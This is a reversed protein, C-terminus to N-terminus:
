FRPETHTDAVNMWCDSWIPPTRRMIAQFVLYYMFYLVYYWIDTYNQMWVKNWVLKIGVPRMQQSYINFLFFHLEYRVPMLSHLSEKLRQQITTKTKKPVMIWVSVRRLSCYSYLYQHHTGSDEPRDKRGTLLSARHTHRGCENLLRVMNAPHSAYNGSISLLVYLVIRLVM